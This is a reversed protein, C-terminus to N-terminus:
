HASLLQSVWSLRSRVVLLYFYFSFCWTHDSDLEMFPLPM